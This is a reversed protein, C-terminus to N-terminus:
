MAPKTVQLSRVLGELRGSSFEDSSEWTRRKCVIENLTDSPIKNLKVDDPTM